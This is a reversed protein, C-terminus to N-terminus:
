NEPTQGAPLSPASPVAGLLKKRVLHIHSRLTYLMDAFTLPTPMRNVAQEIKELRALWEERSQSQPAQDFEAELFKLEGYRRAEAASAFEHGDISVRRASFKNM